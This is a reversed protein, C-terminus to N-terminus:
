SLNPWTKQPSSSHHYQFKPQCIRQTSLVWYVIRYFDLILVNLVVCFISAQNTSNWLLVFVRNPRQTYKANPNPPSQDTTILLVAAGSFHFKQQEPSIPSLVHLLQSSVLVLSTFSDPLIEKPTMVGFSYRLSSPSYWLINSDGLHYQNPLCLPTIFFCTLCSVTHWPQLILPSFFPSWQICKLGWYVPSIM